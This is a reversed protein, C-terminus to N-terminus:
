VMISPFEIADDVFFQWSLWLELALLDFNTPLRIIEVKSLENRAETCEKSVWPKRLLEDKCWFMMILVHTVGGLYETFHGSPFPPPQHLYTHIAISISKRTSVSNEAIGPTM